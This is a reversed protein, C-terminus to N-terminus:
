RGMPEGQKHQKWSAGWLDPANIDRLRQGSVINAAHRAHFTFIQQAKPHSFFSSSFARQETIEM